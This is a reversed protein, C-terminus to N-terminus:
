CHRRTGISLISETKMCGVFYKVIECGFHLNLSKQMMPGETFRFIMLKRSSFGVGLCTCLEVFM